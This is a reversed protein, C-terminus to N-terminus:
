QIMKMMLDGDRTFVLVVTRMDREVVAEYYATGFSDIHSAKGLHWGPYEKELLEGVDVPLEFQKIENKVQSVYGSEDFQLTVAKGDLKFNAEYSIENISWSVQHIKPYLVEFAEVIHQPVDQDDDQAATAGATCIILVATLAKNIMRNIGTNM